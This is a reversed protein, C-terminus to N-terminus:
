AAAPAPVSQGCNRCHPAFRLHAGGCHPCAEVLARGCDWCHAQNPEFPTACLPCVRQALRARTIRERNFVWRKLAILALACGLTGLAAVGLQAIGELLGWLYMLALVVLQAVAALLFGTLLSLFRWRARRGRQWALWALALTAGAYGFRLAFLLLERRHVRRGYIDGVRRELIGLRTQPGALQAEAQRVAAESRREVAQAVEYVQRSQRYDADQNPDRRRAELGTRFEERRFQYAKDAEAARKERAALAARRVTVVAQLREVTARAPGIKVAAEVDARDPSPVLLETQNLVWLGAMLLFVVLGLLLAKEVRTTEMEEAERYAAPM